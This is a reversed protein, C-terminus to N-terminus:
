VEVKVTALIQEDRIAVGDTKRGARRTALPRYEQAVAAALELLNGPAATRVERLRVQRAAGRQAIEVVVALEIHDDAVDIFGDRDQAVDRRGAVVPEAHLQCALVM